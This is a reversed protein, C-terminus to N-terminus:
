FYEHYSSNDKGKNLLLYLILGIQEYPWVSVATNVKKLLLCAKDLMGGYSEIHFLIYHCFLSWVYLSKYANKNM